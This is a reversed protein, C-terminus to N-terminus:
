EVDSRLDFLPILHEMTRATAGAHDAFFGEAKETNKESMSLVEEIAAALEAPNKCLQLVGAEIAEQAPYEITWINPGTLVPKKLALPEIVNHAGSPLFGGGVVAIDCLALYFYMEGMSNGLLIDISNLIDPDSISLDEDFGNSRKLITQGEQTLMDGVLSFREPARPIHIFLPAIKGQTHFSEQLRKYAELYLTDEGEVVSAVAVVPRKLQPKLAAAAQILREPIRQDFRLEGTTHVNPAGLTRFREAHRKSKAFVGALGAVPHGLLRALRKARPYSRSPIQSNALFLPVGARATEAIMVPWIEVELSLALKPRMASLFRRYAMGLEFPLYRVVLRGQTIEDAFADEAAKRGAPTLHTTVVKEGQDLLARVLPTASRMEGLSVAHVWVAGELVPGHGWRERMNQGYAPDRRARRKFYFLVLPLGAWWLARYLILAIRLRRTM